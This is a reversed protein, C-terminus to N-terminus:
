KGGSMPAKNQKEQKSALTRVYNIIEWRQEESYTEQFSPMPSRGESIKWFITGDSQQWLAPDSLNGPRVPTGDRELGAAAPGDGKGAPGHCPLCGGVFLEKGTAISTADALVPNAKRAARAPAIWADAPKKPADQGLAVTFAFGAILAIAGYATVSSRALCAKLFNTM